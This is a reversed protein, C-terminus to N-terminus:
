RQFLLPRFSAKFLAYLYPVYVVESTKADAKGAEEGDNKKPKIWVNGLFFGTVLSIGLIPMIAIFAWMIADKGADRIVQQVSQPLSNISDLSNTNHADFAGSSGSTTASSLAFSNSWKNNFVAGMITLGITGGFPLAFRMLSMAPAIKEPWVGAIHLSAPMFRSGTGAGALVMMGNVIGTNRTSIGWAILALGITEEITGLTLPWFTQAPSVNCMFMAMYVGVGLGPIYYLLEVGARSSPYAEVLTFYVGIYYFVAYMAAGGSFDLIAILLTDLRTFLSYPIMPVQKPFFRALIRGPELFYEYVFFLVFCVAGIIVPALVQASLWPYTSGGWATGLIMLGVGFIFLITGGIDLTALGSLISSWKRNGRNFHTGELLEKSLLFYIAIHSLLSIPISIVFVYRWNAKTLYGGIVPGVSYGISSVLTFITNNKANEELSVKDALVIMIINMIGAASTGQLARGLLLMGWTQAAAALTSGVLMFGMSIQLVAHRGYVDALQGFTPIFATSTLTYATVIWNLQDFKNFHSAIYSVSSAVITLDLSALTYPLLLGGILKWRYVRADHKEQKCTPCGDDKTVTEKVPASPDPSPSASALPQHSCAKKPPNQAEPAALPKYKKDYQKKILRFM